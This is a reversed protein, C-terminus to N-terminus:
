CAMALVLCDGGQCCSDKKVENFIYNLVIKSWKNYIIRLENAKETYQVRPHDPIMFSM